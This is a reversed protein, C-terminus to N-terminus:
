LQSAPHCGLLPDGNKALVVGLALGHVIRVARLREADVADSKEFARVPVALAAGTRPM